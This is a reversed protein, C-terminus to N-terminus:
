HAIMSWQLKNCTTNPRSWLSLRRALINLNFNDWPCAVNTSIFYNNTVLLLRLSRVPSLSQLNFRKKSWRQAKWSISLWFVHSLIVLSLLYLRWRDSQTRHMGNMLSRLCRSQRRGRGWFHCSSTSIKERETSQSSLNTRRSNFLPMWIRQTLCFHEMLRSM